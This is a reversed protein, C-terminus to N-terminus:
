GSTPGRPKNLETRFPQEGTFLKRCVADITDLSAPDKATDVLEHYVLAAKRWQAGRVRAIVDLNARAKAPEVPKRPFPGALMCTIDAALHNFLFYEPGYDAWSVESNDRISQRLQQCAQRFLGLVLCQEHTLDRESAFKMIVAEFKSEAEAGRALLDWALGTPANASSDPKKFERWLRGVEKLEGYLHQFDGTTSVDIERRKKRIDWYTVIRQGVFGLLILALVAKFLELVISTRIDM